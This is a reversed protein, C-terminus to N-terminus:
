SFDDLATPIDKANGLKVLFCQLFHNCNHKTFVTWIIIHLKWIIWADGTQALLRHTSTCFALLAERVGPRACDHLIWCMFKVYARYFRSREFTTLRADSTSFRRNKDNQYKNTRHKKLQTNRMEVMSQHLLKENVKEHLLWTFYLPSCIHNMTQISCTGSTIFVHTSTRCHICPLIVPLCQVVRQYEEIGNQTSAIFALNHLVIWAHPGWKQTPAGPMYTKHYENENKNQTVYIVFFTHVAKKDLM